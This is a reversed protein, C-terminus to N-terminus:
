FRGSSLWAAAYDFLTKVTDGFQGPFAEAEKAPMLMHTAGEVFATTVDASAARETILESALYEYGGTMGMVLMPCRIHAVNAPTCCYCSDWDIGEVGTPGIRYDPTTRVATSSLYQRVTTRLAGMGLSGTMSHSGRPSRVSHVIEVNASGDARLLPWPKKTHAFLHMDQPFLKNNPAIQSGGPILLPEDDEFKASRENLLALRELAHDILRENRERQARFFRTLFDEGYEAGGPAFGNEPSFSDFAADLAVGSTEDTVGPDLSFLTMAGNGWNSDILMLGDAPALGGVDTLPVIKEPGRFVSAGNEAAAQYASMLTAGGSHGLLVTKKVGTERLRALAEGVEPLKRDLPSDARSVNACITPFGRRALEPGAPFNLYDADSHMVLVGTDAAGTVPEYLVGSMWHGIRLYTTRLEHYTNNM